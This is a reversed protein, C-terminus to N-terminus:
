SGRTRLSATSTTSRTTTTGASASQTGTSVTSSSAATSALQQSDSTAVQVGPTVQAVAQSSAPASVVAFLFSASALGTAVIVAIRGPAKKRDKASM